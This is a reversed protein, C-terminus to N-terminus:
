VWGIRPNALIARGLVGHPPAWGGGAEFGGMAGGPNPGSDIYAEDPRPMGGPDANSGNGAEQVVSRTCVV